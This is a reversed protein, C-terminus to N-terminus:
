YQHVFIFYGAAIGAADWVLDKLSFPRRKIRDFTEKGLGILVTVSVSYLAGEGADSGFRYKLLYFSSGCIGASAYFHMFKDQGFWPDSVSMPRVALGPKVAASDGASYAAVRLQGCLFACLGVALVPTM